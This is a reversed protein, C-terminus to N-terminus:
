DYHCEDRSTQNYPYTCLSKGAIPILCALCKCDDFPYTNDGPPLHIKYPVNCSYIPLVRFGSVIAIGPPWITLSIGIPGMFAYSVFANPNGMIYPLLPIDGPARLITRATTLNDDLAVIFSVLCFLAAVPLNSVIAAWSFM